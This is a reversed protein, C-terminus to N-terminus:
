FATQKHATSLMYPQLRSREERTVSLYRLNPYFTSGLRILIGPLCRALTVTVNKEITNNYKKNHQRIFRYLKLTVYASYLIFM